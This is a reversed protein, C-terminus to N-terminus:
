RRAVERLKAKEGLAQYCTSLMAWAHFDTEMLEVAKEYHRTAAAVDRKILYFRGAEKNVEWSERGSRPDGSGDGRAAADSQGREQLRKFMPLHAEAITPDIALAAHAAAFGDDVESASATACARNPSRWCRGPTPM